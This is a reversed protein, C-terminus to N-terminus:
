WTEGTDTCKGLRKNFTDMTSGRVAQSGRKNWEGGSNNTLWDMDMNIIFMDLNIMNFRTGGKDRAM